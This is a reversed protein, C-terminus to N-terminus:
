LEQNIGQVPLDFLALFSNTDKSGTRGQPKWTFDLMTGESKKLRFFIVDNRDAHHLHFSVELLLLSTEKLREQTNILVQNVILSISLYAELTEKLTLVNSLM